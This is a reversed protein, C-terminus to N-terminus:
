KKNKTVGAFRMVPLSFMVGTNPEHFDGCIDKIVNEATLILEDPMVAILMKGSEGDIGFKQRSNSFFAPLSFESNAALAHLMGECKVVTAGSIGVNALNSLVQPMVDQQNSIYVLLQM